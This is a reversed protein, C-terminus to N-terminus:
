TSFPYLTARGPSPTKLTLSLFALFPLFGLVPSTISIGALFTTVNWGALARLSLTLYDIYM